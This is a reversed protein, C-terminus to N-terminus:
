EVEMSITNEFNYSSWYDNIQNILVNKDLESEDILEEIDSSVESNSDLKLLYYLQAHKLAIERNSDKLIEYILYFLNVKLKISDDTLVAKNIYMIAKENENLIYYNEIIEKFVFWEKKVKVIDNLIRLAKDNQNLEKLSKAIRWQYWIDSDNTFFNLSNLAENSIEICLDWDACALYSKSAYDYFKEKRSRYVRGNFNSRKEDLLDPNLKFIWDFINYYEGKKYLFDLIKMVSFTYPCTNVQNLDAQPILDTIFDVADFLEDEDEFNKVHVQYIAWCYSIRSNFDFEDSSNNFLQEYIELSKEYKKSDYLKIAQNLQTKVNMDM